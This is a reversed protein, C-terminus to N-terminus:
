VAYFNRRICHLFKNVKKIRKQLCKKKSFHNGVSKAILLRRIGQVMTQYDEIIAM